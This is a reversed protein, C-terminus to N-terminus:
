ASPHVNSDFLVGESYPDTAAQKMSDPFVLSVLQLSFISERAPHTSNYPGTGPQKPPWHLLHCVNTDLSGSPSHVEHLSDIQDPHTAVMHCIFHGFM